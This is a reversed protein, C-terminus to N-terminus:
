TLPDDKAETTLSFCASWNSQKPQLGGTRAQARGAALIRRSDTLHEGGTARDDLSHDFSM